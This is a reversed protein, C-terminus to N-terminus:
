NTTIDSDNKCYESHSCVDEEDAFFPDLRGVAVRDGVSNTVIKHTHPHIYACAHFSEENGEKEIYYENRKRSPVYERGVELWYAHNNRRTNKKREHTPQRFDASWDNHGNGTSIEPESDDITFAYITVTRIEDGSERHGGRIDHITDNDYDNNDSDDAPQETNTLDNEKIMDNTNEENIHQYTDEIEQSDIRTSILKGRRCNIRRNRNVRGENCSHKQARKHM